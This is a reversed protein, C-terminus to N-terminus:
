EACWSENGMAMFRALLLWCFFCYSYITLFRSSFMRLNAFTLAFPRNPHKALIGTPLGCIWDISELKSAWYFLRLALILIRVIADRVLPWAYKCIYAQPMVWRALHFSGFCFVHTFACEHIKFPGIFIFFYVTPLVYSEASSRAHSTLGGGGM